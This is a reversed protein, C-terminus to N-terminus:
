RFFRHVLPEVLVAAGARYVDSARRRLPSYRYGGIDSTLRATDRELDGRYGAIYVPRLVETVHEYLELDLANAERVMAQQEEPLEKFLVPRGTTPLENQKVYRVDMGSDGLRSRFLLLSEDFRETLGVFGFRESLEQKARALDPGGAIRVTQYNEFRPEALFGELSWDIGMVLRQYNLHSMYRSIPHRLFTFYFVPGVVSEYDLSARVTHGGIGRTLPLAGVFARLENRTFTNEKENAWYYWPHLAAFTPYNYRLMHHLTTGGAREIHVFCLFPERRM